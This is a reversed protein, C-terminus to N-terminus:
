LWNWNMDRQHSFASVSSCFVTRYDIVGIVTNKFRRPHTEICVGYILAKWLVYIDCRNYEPWIRHLEMPLATNSPVWFMVQAIVPKLLHWGPQHPPMCLQQKIGIDSWCQAHERFWVCNPSSLLVLLGMCTEYQPVQAIDPSCLYYMRYIHSEGYPEYYSCLMCSEVYSESCMGCLM